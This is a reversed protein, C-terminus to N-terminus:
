RGKALRMAYSPGIMSAGAALAAMVRQGRWVAFARICAVVRATGAPRSSSSRATM